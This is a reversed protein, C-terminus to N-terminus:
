YVYFGVIISGPAPPYTFTTTDGVTIFDNAQPSQLSPNLFIQVGYLPTHAWTFVTNVGDVAGSPTEYNSQTGSSGGGPINVTVDNGLATVSVGAGTFDLSSVSSTLTLGEDKIIVPKGKETPNYFPM